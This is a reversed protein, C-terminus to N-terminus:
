ENLMMEPKYVNNGDCFFVLNKILTPFANIFTIILDCTLLCMYTIHGALSVLTIDSSLAECIM